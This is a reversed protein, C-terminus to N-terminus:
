NELDVAFIDSVHIHPLMGINNLLLDLEYSLLGFFHVVLQGGLKIFDVFPDPPWRLVDFLESLRLLIDCFNGDGNFLLLLLDGHTHVDVGDKILEVVLECRCIM